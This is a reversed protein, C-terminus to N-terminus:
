SPSGHDSIRNALLVIIEEAADFGLRSMDISLHFNRADYWSTGCVREVYRERERDTNDIMDEAETKNVAAYCKMMREIRFARSAYVFVNLLQARGALAHFGCRGVIVCSGRAAFGLLVRQEAEILADDSIARPLSGCILHEPSGTSFNEMMRVWFSQIREERHSLESESVGLEQSAQQLIQRDLYVLGLRRAIRQGLEAGGSGIQRAITIQFPLTM